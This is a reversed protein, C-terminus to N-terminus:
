GRAGVRRWFNRSSRSLRFDHRYLLKFVICIAIARGVKEKTESDRKSLRKFATRIQPLDINIAEIEDMVYAADSGGAGRDADGRM